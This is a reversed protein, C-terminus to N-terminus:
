AAAPWGRPAPGAGPPDAIEWGAPGRPPPGGGACAARGCRSSRIAHYANGRGIVTRGAFRRGDVQAAHALVIARQVGDVTHVQVDRRALDEAQDAVVARALARQELHHQAQDRGRGAVDTHGARRNDPAAGACRPALQTIQGLVHHEVVVQVAQLRQAEEGAQLARRQALARLHQLAHAQGMGALPRHALIGLAHALAQPKRLREQAARAHQEQVLRGVAQIRLGDAVEVGRQALQLGAADGDDDGRVDQGLQLLTHVAQGDQGGTPQLGHAAHLLQAFARLHRQRHLELHCLGVAGAASSWVVPTCGSTIAAPRRRCHMRSCLIATSAATAARPARARSTFSM